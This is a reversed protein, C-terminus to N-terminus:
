WTTCYLSIMGQKNKGKRFENDSKGLSAGATLTGIGVDKQIDYSVAKEQLIWKLIM